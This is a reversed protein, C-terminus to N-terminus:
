KNKKDHKRQYMFSIGALVIIGAFYAYFTKPFTEWTIAGSKLESHLANENPFGGAYMSIGRIILYAGILATALMIVKKETKFAFFACVIVCGVIVGWYAATSEIVFTTSLIFGITAGGWGALITIGVKRSKVLLFGVLGGLILCVGLVTWIVWEKPTSNATEVVWMAVYLFVVSSAIFGVLGIVFNVFKNGFFALFLGGVIMVAGLLFSYKSLFMTLADYQFTPCGKASTYLLTNDGAQGEYRLVDVSRDCTINLSLGVAGDGSLYHLSLGLIDYNNDADHIDDAVTNASDGAKLGICGNVDYRYAYYDGDIAQCQTPLGTFKTKDIPAECFNFYFTAGAATRSDYQNTNDKQDDMIGGVNYFASDTAYNCAGLNKVDM